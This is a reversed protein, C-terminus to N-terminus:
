ESSGRSNSPWWGIIRIPLKRMIVFIAVPLAGRANVFLSTTVSAAAAVPGERALRLEDSRAARIPQSDNVPTVRLAAAIVDGSQNRVSKDGGASVCRRCDIGQRAGVNA